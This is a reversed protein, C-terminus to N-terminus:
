HGFSHALGAAARPIAFPNIGTANSSIVRSRANAPEPRAGNPALSMPPASRAGFAAASQAISARETSHGYQKAVIRYDFALTSRGGRSERVVFSTANEQAVYLGNSDGKPTLFVEYGAGDGMQAFSPDIHVVGTGAVLTGSGFDEITQM